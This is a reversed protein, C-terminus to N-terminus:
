NKMKWCCPLRMRRLRRPDRCSIPKLCCVYHQNTTRVYPQPEHNSEEAEMISRSGFLGVDQAEVYQSVADHLDQIDQIKGFRTLLVAILDHLLALRDAHPRPLLAFAQWLLSVAEDLDQLQGTRHFRAAFALSLGRLSASRQGHPAARLRLANQHLFIAKDLSSIEAERHFDSLISNACRVM